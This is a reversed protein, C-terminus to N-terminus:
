VGLEVLINRAKELHERIKRRKFEPPLRQLPIPILETRPSIFAITTDIEKTLNLILQQEKLYSHRNFLSGPSIEVVM